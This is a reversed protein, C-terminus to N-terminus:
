GHYSCNLCFTNANSWQISLFCLTHHTFRGEGLRMRFSLSRRAWQGCCPVWSSSPSLLCLFHDPLVSVFIYIDMRETSLASPNGLAPQDESDGESTLFIFYLNAFRFGSVSAPTNHSLRPFRYELANWPQNLRHPLNPLWQKLSNCCAKSLLPQWNFVFM